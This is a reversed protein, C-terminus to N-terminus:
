KQRMHVAGDWHPGPPDREYADCRQLYFSSAADSGLESIVSAFIRRATVWDGAQFRALGRSFVAFAQRLREDAESERGLLEWVDVPRTKGVLVFRGMPRAFFGQLNALMESSVILRTGLHKNLGEIRSATNVIDGVARYEYHDMAGVHGLSVEGCHVGLRTPLQVREQGSNFREVEALLELAALCAQERLEWRPTGSAWIALAADGTVDAVVGGRTRIPRFVVEYYRNMLQRLALPDLAESVATYRDVDTALCIGYLREASSRVDDMGAALRDVVPDPLHYGFASRINRRERGVDIYIGLLAGFVAIPMQWLLPVILPLWLAYSKFAYLAGGGYIGSILLGLPLVAGGPMLRLLAGVVLGWLAITLTLALPDLPKIPTGELLNALATAAIEVGSIDLGSAESFVTYFGDKQEPQLQESFGVFVAKGRLDIPPGSFEPRGSELVHHYPISTIAHPPGYFNLYRSTAPGYMALLSALRRSSEREADWDPLRALAQSLDPHDSVFRRLARSMNTLDVKGSLIEARRPLDPEYGAAAALRSLRGYDPLTYVLFAMVPLTPVEGTGPKFLWFQSVRAPVKPLPFPALGLASDALVRIPPVRTEIDAQAGGAGLAVTRRQLYEFLLVNGAERMAGAFAGDGAPDRQEKFIIDFAVVVAGLRALQRVLEAHLNRPWKEPENPLGLRDASEREISVVVVEPPAPRPGRLKFLWSLGIGEELALGLPTFAVAVGLLAVLAGLWLAKARLSFRARRPMPYFPVM